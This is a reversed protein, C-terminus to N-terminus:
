LPGRRPRRRNPPRHLPRPPVPLSGEPALAGDNKNAVIYPSFGTGKVSFGTGKVSNLFARLDPGDVFEMSFFLTGDESPELNGADVVNKHRIQRLTRVERLFRATFAEDHSLESSLFKLAQPENMLTHQALYVAGMGGQGLKRIIRYTNRIVMGPKLDRIENLPLGHTPCSIQSDPYGSDCQPCTKLPERKSQPLNQSPVMRFWQKARQADFGSANWRM